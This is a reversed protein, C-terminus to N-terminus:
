KGMTLLYKMRGEDSPHIIAYKGLARKRKTEKKTLIHNKFAKKRKIKGSGTVRLRKKASSNTKMKPM